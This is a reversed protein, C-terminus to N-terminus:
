HFHSSHCMRRRKNAKRSWQFMLQAVCTVKWERFTWEGQVTESRPSGELHGIVSSEKSLRSKSTLFDVNVLAQTAAGVDNWRLPRGNKLGPSM